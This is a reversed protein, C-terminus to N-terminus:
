WGASDPTFRLMGPGQPLARAPFLLEPHPSTPHSVDSAPPSPAAPRASPRPVSGAPSRRALKAPRCRGDAALQPAIRQELTAIQRGVGLAAVELATLPRRDHLTVGLEAAENALTKQFTPRGLLDGAPELTALLTLQAGDGGLADVGEDVAGPLLGLLEPLQQRTPPGPPPATPSPLRAADNSLPAGDVVPGLGDLLAPFGPVPLAVEQDAPPGARHQHELLALGPEHKRGAQDALRSRLGHGDHHRHEAPEVRAQARGDGEVVVGGKGPM